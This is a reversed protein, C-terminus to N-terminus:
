LMCPHQHLCGKALPHPVRGNALAHISRNFRFLSSWLEYHEPRFARPQFHLIHPGCLASGNDPVHGPDTRGRALPAGQWWRFGGGCDFGLGSLGKKKVKAPSKRYPESKTPMGESTVVGGHAEKERLIKLKM